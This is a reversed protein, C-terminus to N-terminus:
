KDVQTSNETIWDVAEAKNTFDEIRREHAPALAIPHPRHPHDIKFLGEEPLHELNSGTGGAPLLRLHDHFNGLVVFVFFVRTVGRVTQLHHCCCFIRFRTRNLAVEQEAHNKAPM